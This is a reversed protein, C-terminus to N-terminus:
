GLIAGLVNRLSAQDDAHLKGLQRLVLTAEITALLPKILSPKLLGKLAPPETFPSEQCRRPLLDVTRPGTWPLSAESPAEPAGPCLRRATSPHGIPRSALAERSSVPTLLHARPGIPAVPQKLARNEDSDTSILANQGGVFIDTNGALMNIKPLLPPLHM